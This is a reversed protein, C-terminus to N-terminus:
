TSHKTFTILDTYDGHQCARLLADLLEARASAQTLLRKVQPNEKQECRECYEITMIERERASKLNEILKYADIKKM